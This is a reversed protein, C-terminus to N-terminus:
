VVDEEAEEQGGSGRKMDAPSPAVAEGDGAAQGAAATPDLDVLDGDLDTLDVLCATQGRGYATDGRRTM